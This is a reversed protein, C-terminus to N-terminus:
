LIQRQVSQLLENQDVPKTIYDAVGLGQSEFISTTDGKITLVIVPINRASKGYKLESLVDFGNLKPMVIDLIMLDPSESAVKKLAEDGDFATVVQYGVSKLWEGIAQANERDDDVVLIKKTM